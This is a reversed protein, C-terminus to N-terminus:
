KRTAGTVVDIEAGVAGGPFHKVDPHALALVGTLRPVEVSGTKTLRLLIGYMAGETHGETTDGFRLIMPFTPTSLVGTISAVM